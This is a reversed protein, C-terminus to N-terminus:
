ETCNPDPYRKNGATAFTLFASHGRMTGFPRACLMRKKNKREQHEEVDNRYSSNSKSTKTTTCEDADSIQSSAKVPVTSKSPGPVFPNSNPERPLKITPVTDLAVEDVYHERLRAEITKISHFGYAKMKEITRQSQEVCPSYSCVRGNPKITHAAHPVALWSSYRIFVISYMECTAISVTFSDCKRNQCISSSLMHQLMGM